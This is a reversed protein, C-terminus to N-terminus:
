RQQTEKGRYKRWLQNVYRTSRAKTITEFGPVDEFLAQMEEAFEDFGLQSGFKENIIELLTRKQEATLTHM